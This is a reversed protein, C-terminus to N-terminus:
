PCTDAAQWVALCGQADFALHRDGGQEEALVWEAIDTRDTCFPAEEPTLRAGALHLTGLVEDRPLCEAGAGLPRVDQLGVVTPAHAAFAGGTVAREVLFLASLIAFIVPAYRRM